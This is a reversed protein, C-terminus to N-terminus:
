GNARVGVGVSVRVMVVASLGCDLGKGLQPGHIGSGFLNLIRVALTNIDVVVLLLVPLHM